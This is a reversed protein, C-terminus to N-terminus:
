SVVKNYNDLFSLDCYKAIFDPAAILNLRTLDLVNDVTSIVEIQSNQNFGVDFQKYWLAFFVFMTKHLAAVIHTTGTHVGFYKESFYFINILEQGNPLGELHVVKEKCVGSLLESTYEYDKYTGTSVILYTPDAIYPSLVELWRQREIRRVANSPTPHLVIYKKSIGYKDLVGKDKVFLMNPAEQVASFGLAKLIDNAQEFYYKTTIDAQVHIGAPVFSQMQEYVNSIIVTRTCYHLFNSVQVLYKKLPMPLFYVLYSTFLLSRFFAVIFKFKGAVSNIDVCTVFENYGVSIENLFTFNHNIFIISKINASVYFRYALDLFLVHDGLTGGSVIILRKHKKFFSNM